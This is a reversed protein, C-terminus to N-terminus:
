IARLNGGTRCRIPIEGPPLPLQRKFAASYLSSLLRASASFGLCCHYSHGIVPQWRFKYEQYGSGLDYFTLGRENFCRRMTETILLRLPSYAAFRMDFGTIMPFCTNEDYALLIAAITGESTRLRCIEFQHWLNPHNIIRRIFELNSGSLLSKRKLFAFRGHHLTILERLAEESEAGGSTTTFELGYERRLKNERCRTNKRTRKGLRLWQDTIGPDAKVWLRTCLLEAVGRDLLKRTFMSDQDLHKLHLIRRGDADKLLLDVTEEALDGDEPARLLVDNHVSVQHGLFLNMTVVGLRMEFVPIIAQVRGSGDEVLRVNLRLHRKGALVVECWQRNWEWTQFLHCRGGRELEQWVPKLDDLEALTRIQRIRM